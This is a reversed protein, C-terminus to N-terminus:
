AALRIEERSWIEVLAGVLEDMTEVSHSPGLTFRGSGILWPDFLISSERALAYHL